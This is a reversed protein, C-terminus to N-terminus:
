APVSGVDQIDIARGGAPAELTLPEHLRNPVALMVADLLVSM